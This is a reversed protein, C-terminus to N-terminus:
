TWGEREQKKTRSKNRGSPLTRPRTRASDPCLAQHPGVARTGLRRPSAWRPVQNASIVPVGVTGVLRRVTGAVTNVFTPEPALTTLGRMDSAWAGMLGTM